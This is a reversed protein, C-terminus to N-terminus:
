SSVLSFFSIQRWDYASSTDDDTYTNAPLGTTCILYPSLRMRTKLLPFPHVCKRYDAAMGADAYLLSYSKELTGMKCWPPNDPSVSPGDHKTSSWWGRDKKVQYVNLSTGHLVVYVQHWNRYEARKITDEIEMKRQFVGEAHVDCSYSPLRERLLAGGGSGGASAQAQRIPQRIATEYNPPRAPPPRQTMLERYFMDEEMSMRRPRSVSPAEFSAISRAGDNTDM